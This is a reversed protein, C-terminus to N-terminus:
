LLRAMVPAEANAARVAPMVGSVFLGISGLAEERTMDGFAFQGVVYNCQTEALQRKLFDTVAAPSGAIGQGREM